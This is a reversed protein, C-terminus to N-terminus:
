YHNILAKINGLFLDINLFVFRVQNSKPNKSKTKNKSNIFQNRSTGLTKTLHKQVSIALFILSKPYFSVSKIKQSSYHHNSYSSTSSVNDIKNEFFYPQVDDIRKFSFFLGLGYKPKFTQVCPSKMKFAQICECVGKPKKKKQM